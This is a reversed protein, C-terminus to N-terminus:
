NRMAFALLEPARREFVRGGWLIGGVLVVVGAGLGLAGATWAWEGGERVWLVSAWIAPAACLLVAAMSLTQTAGGASSATQPASFASAGPPAVAYPFRASVASGVGISGFLVAACLGLVVVVGGPRGVALATLPSGVAIVLIGLALVPIARGVRDQVGRIPAVVHSWIATSDYATDNHTSSWALLLVVTPLPVLAIVDGPVGGVSAAALMLVPVFPLALLSAAYRPDRMWYVLSRAAIAATPSGQVLRFVGLHRLGDPRRVPRGGGLEGRVLLFQVAGLVLIAVGGGALVPGASGPVPQSHPAEWLLSVGSVRLLDALAAFRDPTTGQRGLLPASAAIGVAALVAWAIARGLRGHRARWLRAGLISSLHVSQLGLVLLITAPLIAAGAGGVMSWAGVYGGLLVLLVLCPFSVLGTLPVLLALVPRRLGYGAFGGAHLPDDRVVAAPLFLCLASVLTGIIVSAARLRGEAAAGAAVLQQTALAAATLLVLAGASRRLASGPSRFGNALMVLRMTLLQGFLPLGNM